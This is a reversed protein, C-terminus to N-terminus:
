RIMRRVASILIVSDGLSNGHNFCLITPEGAAPMSERGRVQVRAYFALSCIRFLRRVFSYFHTREAADRRRAFHAESALSLRRKIKGVTSYRKPPPPDALAVLDPAAPSM